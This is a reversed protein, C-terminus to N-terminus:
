RQDPATESARGRDEDSKEEIADGYNNLKCWTAFETAGPGTWYYQFAEAGLDDNFSLLIEHEAMVVRRESKINHPIGCNVKV